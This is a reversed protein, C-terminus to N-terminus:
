QWLRGQWTNRRVMEKDIDNLVITKNRTWEPALLLDAPADGTLRQIIMAPPLVELQSVVTEIYAEKSMLPFPKREYTKGMATQKMVHLMHIKVAQIDLAAIAKASEVMMDPTEGPLSNMLHTVVPLGYDRLRKVAFQFNAFSHGRNILMATEDHMSQLGLEIWVEKDQHYSALYNIIEESLCDCRTAIAIAVIDDRYRFPEYLQKLVALPAYTNTFAQFYAIALGGPWKREMMQKGQEFQILLDDQVNGAYDGSGSSSCFTCGGYGASGDRNPCTFGANLPVKYVKQQYRHKLYYNWTLYRKNDDSYLFPNPQKM